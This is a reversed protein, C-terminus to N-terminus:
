VRRTLMNTYEKEASNHYGQGHTQEYSHPDGPLGKRLLRSIVFDPLRLTAPSGTTMADSFHQELEDSAPIIKHFDRRSMTVEPFDQNHNLYHTNDVQIHIMDDHPTIMVDQYLDQLEELIRKAFSMKKKNAMINEEKATIVNGRAGVANPLKPYNEM